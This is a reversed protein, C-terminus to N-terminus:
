AFSRVFSFPHSVVTEVFLKDQAQVKIQKIKQQQRQISCVSAIPPFAVLPNLRQHIHKRM